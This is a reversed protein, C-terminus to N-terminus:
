EAGKRKLVNAITMLIIKIDMAVTWTDIYLSDMRVVEEFDTIDSRGSVQWMGTIGPKMSLRKRHHESYHEWEDLTPPRTGVLSMTGLVCSVFQPFEDISTNRIFNGIGKPRGNKDKKESGIIRPDDDVKFMFGKMKNKDMLEAKRADANKYMSRFKYMTFVKGNKGVRKSGYFIPGPDAHYIMPGVIITLIITILCGVLGGVIDLTRKLFWQLMPIERQKRTAVVCDGIKQITPTITEPDDGGLDMLIRYSTIGMTDCVSEMEQYLARDAPFFLFVEDVWNHVAYDILENKGGLIQFKQERKDCENEPLSDYDTLFVGSIKIANLPNALIAKTVKDAHSSTTLVVASTLGDESKLIKKRLFRKYIFRTSLTLVIYISWTATTTLRSAAGGIHIFYIFFINMLMMEVTHKFTEKVEIFGQRKLINKYPTDIVLSVLVGILLLASVTRYITHFRLMSDTYSAYWVNALYYSLEVVVIDLVIFDLHKLVSSGKKM